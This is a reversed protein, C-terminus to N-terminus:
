KKLFIVNANKIADAYKDSIDGDINFEIMYEETDYDLLTAKATVYGDMGGLDKRIWGDTMATKPITTFGFRKLAQSLTLVGDFNLLRDLEKEQSSFLLQNAMHNDSWSTSTEKSWIFTWRDNHDASKKEANELKRDGEPNETEVTGYEGKGRINNFIDNTKEEGLVDAVRKKAGNYAAFLGNYAAVSEALRTKHVKNGKLILCISLATLAAPLAYLKGIKIATRIYVHKKDENAMEQTYDVIEGTEDDKTKKGEQVAIDRKDMEEKGEDLIDHLKTSQIGTTVIAGIGVAIGGFILLSPANKSAKMKIARFANKIKM